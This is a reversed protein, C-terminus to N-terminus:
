RIQRLLQLGTVSHINRNRDMFTNMTTNDTSIPYARIRKVIQSWVLVPCISKHGSRYHTVTDNRTDKKQYEFSISVTDSLHLSTDNQKIEQRGKFFRINKLTLLKTQHTGSVKLYECYHM